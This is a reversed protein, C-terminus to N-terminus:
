SAHPTHLPSPEVQAESVQASPVDHEMLERGVEDEEVVAAGEVEVVVAAGVAAVEEVVLDAVVDDGVVAAEMVGDGENTSAIYVDDFTFDDDHCFDNREDSPVARASLSVLPSEMEVTYVLLFLLM